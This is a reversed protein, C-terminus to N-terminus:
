DLSVDALHGTYMSNYVWGKVNDGVGFSVEPQFLLAFPGEKAVTETIEAYIPERDAWDQLAAAQEVLDALDDRYWQLRWALQNVRHNAFPKANTDPDAYDPGWNALIMEAKQARYIEYMEGGTMQRIEIDIGAEALDSQIKAAIDPTPVGATPATNCLMEASFGDPMGAEALLSKAKEVDREYYRTDDYGKFGKPIISQNLVANGMLVYEVIGEYDIAWKVANRVRQDGFPEIGVNMGVYSLSDGYGHVVHVGDTEEIDKLQEHNLNFAIDIDGKELQMKQSAPESIHKIVVQKVGPEGDFHDKNAAGRPDGGDLISKFPLQAPPRSAVHM